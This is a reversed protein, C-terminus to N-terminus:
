RRSMKGGFSLIFFTLLFADNEERTNLSLEWDRLSRLLEVPFFAVSMNVSSGSVSKKKRKKEKIKMELGETEMGEWGGWGDGGERGVKSGRNPCEPPRSTGEGRGGM